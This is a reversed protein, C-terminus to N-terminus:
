EIRVKTYESLNITASIELDGLILIEEYWARGSTLANLALEIINSADEGSFRIKGNEDKAYYYGGERWITFKPAGPYIGPGITFTSQPTQALICYTLFTGLLIGILFASVLKNKGIKLDKKIKLKKSEM